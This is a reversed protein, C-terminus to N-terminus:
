LINMYRNLYLPLLVVQQAPAPALVQPGVELSLMRCVLIVVEEMEVLEEVAIDL